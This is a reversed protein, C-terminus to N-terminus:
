AWGGDLDDSCRAHCSLDELEMSARCEPLLMSRACVGCCRWASEVVLLVFSMVGVIVGGLLDRRRPATM